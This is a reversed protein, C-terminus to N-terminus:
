LHDNRSLLINRARQIIDSPLGLWAAITLAAQPVSGQEVWQLRRDIHQFLHDGQDIITEMHDPLGRIQYIRLNPIHVVARYHSVFCTFWNKGGLAEVVAIALAEGEEPNTGRGIEDCLVLHPVREEKRLLEVLQKVEGGFSSLGAEMKEKEGGIWSIGNVPVFRFRKAPVPLGLQAILTCLGLTRMAVSKGGMNPGVIVAVQGCQLLIDVPTFSENQKEWLEALWPHFGEQMEIERGDEEWIPITGHYSAALCAKAYLDDVRGFIQVWELLKERYPLIRETLDANAEIEAKLWARELEEKSNALEREVESLEWGFAVDFPTEQVTRFVPHAKLRQIKWDERRSIYFPSSGPIEFGIEQEVARKREMGLKSKREEIRKAEEQLSKFFDPYISELQFSHDDGAGRESPSLIGIVAQWDKEAYAPFLHWVWGWDPMQLIRLGKQLFQLLHFWDIRQLVRGKQWGALITEIDEIGNAYRVYRNRDKVLPLFRAVDRVEKQWKEKEDARYPRNELKRKKGMPTLPAYREWIPLFRLAELDAGSIYDSWLEM